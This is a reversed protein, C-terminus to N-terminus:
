AGRTSKLSCRSSSTSIKDFNLCVQRDFDLDTQITVELAKFLCESAACEKLSQKLGNYTGLRASRAAEFPDSYEDSVAKQVHNFTVPVDPHEQTSATAVPASAM